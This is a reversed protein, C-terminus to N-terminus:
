DRRNLLNGKLRYVSACTANQALTAIFGVANSDDFDAIRSIVVLVLQGKKGVTSDESLEALVPLVVKHRRPESLSQASASPPYVPAGLVEKYYSRGESDIDGPLRIFEFEEPNPVMPLFAPLKLFGTIASFDAIFVQGSGDLEHDGAWTGGSTPYVTGVQVYQSPFPYAEDQSGSGVTMTYLHPSIWRPILPLSATLLADRITQPARADYYFTLQEDNQPLPRLAEYDVEVFDNSLYGGGTTLEVTYGDSSVTVIGVYPVTNVRVQVVAYVREPMPIINGAYQARFNRTLSGTRYQLGVERHPFDWQLSGPPFAGFSVPAGAPLQAPNNVVYGYQAVPTKSLGVGTPYEVTMYVYIDEDGALGGPLTGLTLTMSGPPVTGLNDITYDTLEATNDLAADGIFLVKQIDFSIDSPAYSAFNFATYPYIPLATPDITITNGPAWTGGTTYRLVITETIARDSFRRRAADFEGIFQAGPTDGTTISDGGHVNTIGIEDAWLHTSGHVGGGIATSTWETRIVNDFLWNLNKELVEAYNWGSPSIGMRLDLIDKADFIDYFLGDPRDTPGPSAVGGNHNTNRDFATDNRRIVAMLPIAYMYGDVSGITNAPNGDGAVWLGPDGVSSQNAYTFATAVGDPAAPAAPVSNAVVTPDDLGYPYAFVDVGQIVRLRYQIQVRKTTESGVAGDLIDDAFNLTLDDTPDIKVNGFWWIRGSGSKGDTSPSAALLRRWVELIVLDTRKTGAGSPSAGLDLLNATNSNTNGIRILWGNVHARLDQPIELENANASATFIPSIADSTGLFDEAIWGSPLSRRRLRRAMDQETDQVLNLETDLVPKASQYVTTEWNRGEPDLYGSVAAGFDKAM